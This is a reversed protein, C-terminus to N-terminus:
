AEFEAASPQRTARGELMVRFRAVGFTAMPSHAAHALRPKVPWPGIAEAMSVERLPGGSPMSACSSRGLGIRESVEQRPIAARTVSPFGNGGQGSPSESKAQSGVSPRMVRGEAFFVSIRRVRPAKWRHAPQWDSGGGFRRKM